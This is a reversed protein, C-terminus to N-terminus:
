SEEIVNQKSKQMICKLPFGNDAAYEDVHVVKTEAIDRTYLGCFAQGLKNVQRITKEIDKYDQHFFEKLVFGIFEKPTYNDKLLFVQYMSPYLLPGEDDCPDNRRDSLSKKKNIFKKDFEDM